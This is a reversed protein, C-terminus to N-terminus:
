QGQYYDALGSGSLKALYQEALEHKGLLYFAVGAKFIKTKSKDGEELEDRLTLAEQRVESYQNGAIAQMLLDIEDAGFNSDGHLVQQVNVTEIVAESVSKGGM